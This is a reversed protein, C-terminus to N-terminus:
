YFSCVLIENNNLSVRDSLLKLKLKQISTNEFLKFQFSNQFQRNIFCALQNNM